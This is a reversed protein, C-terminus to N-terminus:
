GEVKAIEGKLKSMTAKAKAIHMEGMSTLKVVHIILNVDCQQMEHYM